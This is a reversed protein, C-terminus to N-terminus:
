LQSTIGMGSITMAQTFANLVLWGLCSNKVSQHLHGILSTSIGSIISISSSSSSSSSIGTNSGTPMQRHQAGLLPRQLALGVFWQSQHDRCEAVQDVELQFLQPVSQVGFPAFHVLV